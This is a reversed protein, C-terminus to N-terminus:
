SYVPFNSVDPTHFLKELCIKNFEDCIYTEGNKYYEEVMINMIVLFEKLKHPQLTSTNILPQQNMRNLSIVKFMLLLDKTKQKRIEEDSKLVIVEESEDKLLKSPTITHALMEIEYVNVIWLICLKMIDYYLVLQM